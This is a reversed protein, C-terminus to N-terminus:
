RGTYTKCLCPGRLRICLRQFFGRAKAEGYYYRAMETKIAAPMETLRSGLMNRRPYELSLQLASAERLLYSCPLQPVPFHAPLTSSSTQLVSGRLSQIHYKFGCYYSKQRKVSVLSSLSILSKHLDPSFSTSDANTQHYATLRCTWRDM